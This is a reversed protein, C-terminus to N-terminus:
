LETMKIKNILRAIMKCIMFRNWVGGGGEREGEWGRGVVCVCGDRLIYDENNDM